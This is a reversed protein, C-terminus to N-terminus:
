GTVPCGPIDASNYHCGSHPPRRLALVLFSNERSRGELQVVSGGPELFACAVQVDAGIGLYMSTWGFSCTAAPSKGGRMISTGTLM